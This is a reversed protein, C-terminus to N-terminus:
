FKKLEKKYMFGRNGYVDYRIDFKTFGVSEYFGPAFNELTGVLILVCERKIAEEEALKMIHRGVGRKRLSKDVSLFDITLWGYETFGLLGGMTKGQSDKIVLNLDQRKHKGSSTDILTATHDRLIKLVSTKDDDSITESIHYKLNDLM